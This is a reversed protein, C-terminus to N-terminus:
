YDILDVNEVGVSKLSSLIRPTVSSSAGEDFYLVFNLINIDRNEIKSQLAAVIDKEAVSKLPANGIIIEGTHSVAIVITSDSNPDIRKKKVSSLKISIITQLPMYFQDFADCVWVDGIAHEIGARVSKFYVNFDRTDASSLITKFVESDIEKEQKSVIFNYISYTDGSDSLGEWNESEYLSCFQKSSEILDSRESACAIGSLILVLVLLLRTVKAVRIM